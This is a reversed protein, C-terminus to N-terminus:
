FRANLDVQLTDVKLPPGDIADTSFWRLTAWINRELGYSGGLIYGKGDTGGLHFTQDVFSDPTADRQLYKYAIFTQWNGKLTLQPSGLQGRVQWGINRKEVDVGVRQSVQESDFGINRM